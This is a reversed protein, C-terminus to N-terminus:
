LTLSLVLSPSVEVFFQEAKELVHKKEIRENNTKSLNEENKRTEQARECEERLMEELDDMNLDDGSVDTEENYEPIPIKSYIDVEENYKLILNELFVVKSEREEARKVDGSFKRNM